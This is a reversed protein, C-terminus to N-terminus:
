FTTECDNATPILGLADCAGRSLISSNSGTDVIGVVKVGNVVVDLFYHMPDKRFLHTLDREPADTAMGVGMINSKNLAHIARDVTNRVFDTTDWNM